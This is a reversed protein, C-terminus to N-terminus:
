ILLYFHVREEVKLIYVGHNNQEVILCKKLAYCTNALVIFSKFHDSL